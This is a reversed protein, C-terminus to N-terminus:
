NTLAKIQNEFYSEFEEFKSTARGNFGTHVSQVENKANIFFTTPFSSIENVFGLVETAEEKSSTGGYLIEYPINLREKYREIMKKAKIPDKHREFAVALVEINSLKNEKLYEIVYKSEELCNPCWTGMVMLIKAKDEYKGKAINVLQGDTNPLELAIRNDLTMITTLTSPNKLEANPNKKAIWNTKYHNGSYFKGILTKDEMLKSTFLFAHSGDFVSLSLQDGQVTGELFRYDGTETRFTGTLFNEDTKFEAIATYEDATEIEFQTAWIGEVDYLPAKKDTSFRHNKGFFAVFPIKKYDERNPVYWFGELVNEKYELDLYTDLIVFDIVLTDKLKKNRGFSIDDIVIREEANHITMILEDDADYSIDFNFPLIADKELTLEGRWIGPPIKSYPRTIEICSSFVLLISILSGALQKFM